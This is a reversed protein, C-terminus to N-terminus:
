DISDFNEILHNFVNYNDREQFECRNNLMAEIVITILESELDYMDEEDYGDNSFKEEVFKRIELLVIYIHPEYDVGAVDKLREVWGNPMGYLCAVEICKMLSDYLDVVCILLNIRSLEKETFNYQLPHIANQLFNLDIPIVNNDM